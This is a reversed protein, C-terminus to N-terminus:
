FKIKSKKGPKHLQFDVFEINFSSDFKNKIAEKPTVPMIYGESPIKTEVSEYPDVWSTGGAWMQDLIHEARPTLTVHYDDKQKALVEKPTHWDAEIEVVELQEPLYNTVYTNNPDLSSSRQGISFLKLARKLDSETLGKTTFTRGVQSQTYGTPKVIKLTCGVYFGPIYMQMEGVLDLLSESCEEKYGVAKFCRSEYNAMYKNSPDIVISSMGRDFSLICAELLDLSTTPTVITGIKLRGSTLPLKVCEINCGIFFGPIHKQMRTEISKKRELDPLDIFEIDKFQYANTHGNPWKVRLWNNSDSGSRGVVIGINGAGGDQEGWPWESSRVVKRGILSDDYTSPKLKSYSM